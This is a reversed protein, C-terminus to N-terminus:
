EIRSIQAKRKGSTIHDLCVHGPNLPPLVDPDEGQSKVLKLELFPYQPDIPNVFKLSYVKSQQQDSDTHLVKQLTLAREPRTDVVFKGSREQSLFGLCDGFEPRIVEVRGIDKIVSSTVIPPPLSTKTAVSELEDVPLQILYHQLLATRLKAWSSQTGKELELYWVLAKDTLCTSALEAVSEDDKMRGHQFAVRQVSQIFTAVSENSGGAFSIWVTPNPNLLTAAAKQSIPAEITGDSTLLAELPGYGSSM